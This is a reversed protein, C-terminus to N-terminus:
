QLLSRAKDSVAGSIKLIESLEEDNIGAKQAFSRYKSFGPHFNICYCSALAVLIDNRNLNEQIEPGSETEPFKNLAFSQMNRTAM